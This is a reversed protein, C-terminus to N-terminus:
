NDWTFLLKRESSWLEVMFIMALPIEEHKKKKGTDGEDVVIDAMVHPSYDKDLALTEGVDSQPEIGLGDQILGELEM